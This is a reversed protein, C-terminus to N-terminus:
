TGTSALYNVWAKADYRFDQGTLLELSQRAQWAVGFDQDDLEEILDRMVEVLSAEDTPLPFIEVTAGDPDTVTTTRVAATM